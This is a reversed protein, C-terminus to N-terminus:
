RGENDTPNNVIRAEGIQKNMIKKDPSLQQPSFVLPVIIITVATM